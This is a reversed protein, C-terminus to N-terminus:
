RINWQGIYTPSTVSSSLGCEHCGTSGLDEDSEKEIQILSAKLDITQINSSTLNLVKGQSGCSCGFRACNDSLIWRRYLLHNM